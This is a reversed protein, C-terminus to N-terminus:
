RKAELIELFAQLRTSMQGDNINDRDCGDGDLLLVPLGEGEMMEKILIASGLTQKCGWHNFYVAGDANLSKAKDILKEARKQPLVTFYIILCSAHWHNLRATKTWKRCSTM